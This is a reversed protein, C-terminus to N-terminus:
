RVKVTPPRGISLGANSVTGATQGLERRRRRRRRRRCTVGTVDGRSLYRNTPPPLCPRPCGGGGGGGGGGRRAWVTSWLRWNGDSTEADSNCIPLSHSHSDHATISFELRRRSTLGSWYRHKASLRRTRAGPIQRLSALCLVGSLQPRRPLRHHGASTILPGKTSGPALGDRSPIRGPVKASKSNRLLLSPM